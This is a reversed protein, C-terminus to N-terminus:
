RAGGADTWAGALAEGSGPLPRVQWGHDTLIAGGVEWADADEATPPLALALRNERAGAGAVLAEAVSRDLSGLLAIILNEGGTQALTATAELLDPEGTLDADVLLDLWRDVADPSEADVTVPSSDADLLTVSFGDGLMRVGLSAAASVLAEFTPSLSGVAPHVAERSDLLLWATPDWAAEERRVMLSGTRATSPWHIRRVDDRPQYERVMVDDPGSLATQPIPTEGTIGYSHATRGPLWTHQPRVVVPTAHGGRVTHVWLGLFDAFRYAFGTLTFRGRRRPHLDYEARTIDGSQGSALRFPVGRGLEPDPVDEAFVSTLPSSRLTTVDVSVQMPEGAQGVPPDLTRSVAFRPPRVLVSVLAILPLVLLFISPWLLDQNGLGLAVLLLAVGIVWVTVTRGTPRPLSRM